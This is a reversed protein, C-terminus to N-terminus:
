NAPVCTYRDAPFRKVYLDAIAQCFELDNLFGFVVAVRDDLGLTQKVLWYDPSSGIQNGALFKELKKVQDGYEPKCAALLLASCVAVTTPRLTV